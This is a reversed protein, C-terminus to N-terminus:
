ALSYDDGTLVLDFLADVISCGSAINMVVSIVTHSCGPAAFRLSLDVGLIATCMVMMMKLVSLYLLTSVAETTCITKM